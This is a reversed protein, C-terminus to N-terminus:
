VTVRSARLVALTACVVALAGLALLSEWPLADFPAEGGLLNRLHARPTLLAGLGDDSGLLWDALLLAARGWANAVVASGLMFYAAYAAGALAGFALTQLADEGLPPDGSGHGWAVAAAGLAGCLLASAAMAVLVTTRAVRARPAGLRVLARGSRALGEPAVSAAVLAYALLPVAFTAYVDLAQAAGHVSAQRQERWASGLVLAASGAV